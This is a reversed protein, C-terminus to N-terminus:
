ETLVPDLIDNGNARLRDGLQRFFQLPLTESFDSCVRKFFVHDNRDLAALLITACSEPTVYMRLASPYRDKRQRDCATAWISQLADYEECAAGDAGSQVKQAFYEVM